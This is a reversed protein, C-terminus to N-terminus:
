RNAEDASAALIELVVRAGGGERRQLFLRGRDGYLWELRRRTNGIGIGEVVQGAPPPDPGDDEVALFLGEATSRAVIEIRRAGPSREIGHRIANEV